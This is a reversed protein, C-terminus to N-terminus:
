EEVGLDHQAAAGEDGDASGEEAAGERSGVLGAVTAAM